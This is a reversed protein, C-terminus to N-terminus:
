DKRVEAWTQVDVTKKGGNHTTALATVVKEVHRELLDLAEQSCRKGRERIIRKVAAQNVLKM